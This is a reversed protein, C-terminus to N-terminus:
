IQLTIDDDKGDGAAGAVRQKKMASGDASGPADGGEGGQVKRTKSPLSCQLLGVNVPIAAAEKSLVAPNTMAVPQWLRQRTNTFWNSLQANPPLSPFAVRCCHRNFVPADSQLCSAPLHTRVQQM